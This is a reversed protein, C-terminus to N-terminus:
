LSIASANKAGLSNLTNQLHERAQDASYGAGPQVTVTVDQDGSSLVFTVPEPPRMEKYEVGQIETIVSGRLHIGDAKALPYYGYGRDGWNYRAGEGPSYESNSGDGWSNKVILYTADLWGLEKGNLWGLLAYCHNTPGSRVEDQRGGSGLSGASGCIEMAGTEMLAKQIDPLTPFKGDNGRLYFTRKAKEHRTINTKCRTDRGNAYPYDVHLVAGKEYHKMSLQGGYRASGYGSCDIVDQVSFIRTVRDIFSVTCEMASVSGQAWCDGGLQRRVPTVCSGRMDFNAPIEESAMFGPRRFEANTYQDWSPHYGTFRKVGDVIVFDDEWKPAQATRGQSPKGIMKLEEAEIAERMEPHVWIGRGDIDDGFCPLTYVFLALLFAKMM